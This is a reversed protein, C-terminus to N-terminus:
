RAAADLAQAVTRRVRDADWGAARAAQVAERLTREVAAEDPGPPTDAVRTGRGRLTQVVGAAELERYARAVTGPAIGLDAALTRVSPLASGPALTGAGVHAAVQARIQEFPPVPSRLDVELSPSNM